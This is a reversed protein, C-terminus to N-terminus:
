LSHASIMLLINISINQSRALPLYRSIGHTYTRVQEGGSNWIANLFWVLQDKYPKSILEVLKEHDDAGHLSM